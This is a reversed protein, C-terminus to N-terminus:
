DSIEWDQFQSLELGFIFHFIVDYQQLHQWYLHVYSSIRRATSVNPFHAPMTM